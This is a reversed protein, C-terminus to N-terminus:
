FLLFSIIDTAPSASDRASRRWRAPASLKVRSYVHAAWLQWRSQLIEQTGSLSGPLNCGEPLAPLALSETTCPPVSETSSDVGWLEKHYWASAAKHRFRDVDKSLEKGQWGQKGWGSIGSLEREHCWRCWVNGEEPEAASFVVYSLIQKWKEKMSLSYLKKMEGAQVFWRVM